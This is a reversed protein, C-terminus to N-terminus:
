ITRRVNPKGSDSTFSRKAPTSCDNPTTSPYRAESGSISTLTNALAAETLAAWAV